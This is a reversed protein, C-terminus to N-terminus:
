GVDPPHGQHPIRQWDGRTSDDEDFPLDKTDWFEPWALTVALVLVAVTVLPLVGPNM